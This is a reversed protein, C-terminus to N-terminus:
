PRSRRRILAGLLANGPWSKRQKEAEHILFCLGENVPARQGLREALRVVEGNIWDVETPRGASLDDSMSSRALPDMTLMRRGVIQFLPDPLNLAHPILHAPLPTLNAPRIGAQRLLGLAENQAMALCRRYAHKSLEQKLPLDALANIANNLNLLLKAWLVAEMDDHQRLPLGGGAFWGVFPDLEPSRMVALQGSTGQHFRGPGIRAVNFPVMGDLVLNPLTQRLTAANGIGNQFSVIIAKTGALEEAVRPTAASKTTVLILDADRPNGAFDIDSLKWHKGLYDSLILGHERLEDGIRQRGVFAVDAGASLLRGGIYCGIAGAGYVCIKTM